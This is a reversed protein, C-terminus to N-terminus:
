GELSFLLSLENEFSLLAMLIYGSFNIKYIPLVFDDETIVSRVLSPQIQQQLFKYAMLEINM